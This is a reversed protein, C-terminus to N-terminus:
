LSETFTKPRMSAENKMHQQYNEPECRLSAKSYALFHYDKCYKAVNEYRPSSCMIGIRHYQSVKRDRLKYSEILYKNSARRSGKPIMLVDNTWIQRPITNWSNNTGLQLLSQAYVALRSCIMPMLIPISNHNMHQVHQIWKPIHEGLNPYM